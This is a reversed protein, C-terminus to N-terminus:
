PLSWLLTTRTSAEQVVTCAPLLPPNGQLEKALTKNGHASLAVASRFDGHSAGSLPGATESRAMAAQVAALM